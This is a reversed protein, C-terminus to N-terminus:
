FCLKGKQECESIKCYAIEFAAIYGSEACGPRKWNLSLVGIKHEHSQSLRQPSKLM